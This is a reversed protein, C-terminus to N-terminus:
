SWHDIGRGRRPRHWAGASSGPRPWRGAPPASRDSAPSDATSRPEPVPMREASSSCRPALTNPISGFGSIRAVSFRARRRTGCDPRCRPFCGCAPRTRRGGPRRGPRESTRDALAGAGLRQADELRAGPRRQEPVLPRLAHQREPPSHPAAAGNRAPTRRPARSRAAPHAADAWNKPRAGCSAMKGLWCTNSKSPRAPRTM